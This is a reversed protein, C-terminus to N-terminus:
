NTYHYVYNSFLNEMEGAPNASQRRIIERNLDLILQEAIAKRSAASLTRKGGATFIQFVEEPCATFFLDGKKVFTFTPLVEAPDTYPFIARAQFRGNSDRHMSGQGIIAAQAMRELTHRYVGNSITHAMASIMIRPQTEWPMSINRQPTPIKQQAVGDEKNSTPTIFWGRDEGWAKYIERLLLYTTFGDRLSLSPDVLLLDKQWRVMVPAGSADPPIAQVDLRYCPEVSCGGREQVAFRDEFFVLLEHAQELLPERAGNRRLDNVTAGIAVAIRTKAAAVYEGHQQGFHPKLMWGWAMAM